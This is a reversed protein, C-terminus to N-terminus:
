VVPPIAFARLSFLVMPAFAGGAGPSVAGTVSKGLKAFRFSTRACELYVLRQPFTRSVSSYRGAPWEFKPYFAETGSQREEESTEALHRLGLLAGTSPLTGRTDRPHTHSPTAPPLRLTILM